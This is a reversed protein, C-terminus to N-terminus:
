VYRRYSSACAAVQLGKMALLHVAVSGVGGDAGTVLIPKSSELGCDELAKVCLAATFGATGITM